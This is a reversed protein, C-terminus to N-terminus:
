ATEKTTTPFIPGINIYDATEEALKAQQLSHTSVGILLEPFLKKVQSAPFDDQGLHVGDADVAAAIDVHDNIILLINSKRTIQRFLFAKEYLRRKSSIKDRLQVIKAGGKIMEELIEFDTRGGSNEECTVPYIDVTSFIQLRKDKLSKSSKKINTM